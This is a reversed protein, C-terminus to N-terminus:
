SFRDFADVTPIQYLTGSTPIGVNWGLYKYSCHCLLFIRRRKWPGYKGVQAENM